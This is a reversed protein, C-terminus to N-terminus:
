PPPLPLSCMADESVGKASIATIKESAKRILMNADDM